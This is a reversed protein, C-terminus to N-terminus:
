VIGSTAGRMAKLFLSIIYGSDKILALMTDSEEVCVRKNRELPKM